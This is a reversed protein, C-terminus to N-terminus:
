PESCRPPPPPRQRDTVGLAAALAVNDHGHEAIAALLKEDTFRRHYQRRNGGRPKPPTLAAVLAEATPQAVPRAVPREIREVPAPTVDIM